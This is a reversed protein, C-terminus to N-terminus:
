YLLKDLKDIHKQMKRKFSYHDEVRDISFYTKKSKKLMRHNPNQKQLKRQEKIEDWTKEEHKETIFTGMPSPLALANKRHAM